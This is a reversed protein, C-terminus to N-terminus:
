NVGDILWWGEADFLVGCAALCTYRDATFPAPIVAGTQLSHVVAWHSTSVGFALALALALVLALVLM